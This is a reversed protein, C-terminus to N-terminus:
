NCAVQQLQQEATSTVIRQVGCRLLHLGPQALWCCYWRGAGGASSLAAVAAAAAAAAAAAHQM